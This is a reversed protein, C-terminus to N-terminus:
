SLLPASSCRSPPTLSPSHRATIADYFTASLEKTEMCLYPDEMGRLSAIFDHVSSEGERAM